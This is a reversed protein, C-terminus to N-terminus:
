PLMATVDAIYLNDLMRFRLGCGVLIYFRDVAISCILYQPHLICTIYVSQDYQVISDFVVRPITIYTSNTSLIAPWKSDM